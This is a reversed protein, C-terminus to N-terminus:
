AAILWNGLPMSYHLTIRRTGRKSGNFASRNLNIYFLDTQTLVHDLSLTAGAQSKGTSKSGSDDFSANFRVPRGQTWS